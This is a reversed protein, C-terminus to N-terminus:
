PTSDWLDIIKKRKIEDKITQIEQLKLLAIKYLQNYEQLTEQMPKSWELMHPFYQSTTREESKQFWYEQHHTGKTISTRVNFGFEELIVGLEGLVVRVARDIVESYKNGVQQNGLQDYQSVATHLDPKEHWWIESELLRRESIEKSGAVIMRVKTKLENFRHTSLNLSVDPYKLMYQKVTDEFWKAAFRYTDNIFQLKAENMKSCLSLLESEKIALTEALKESM